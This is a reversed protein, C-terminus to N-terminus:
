MELKQFDGIFIYVEHFKADVRKRVRSPEVYFKKIHTGPM